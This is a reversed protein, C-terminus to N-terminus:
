IVHYEKSIDRLDNNQRKFIEKILLIDTSKKYRMNERQSFKINLYSDM